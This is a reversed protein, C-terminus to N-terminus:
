GDNRGGRILRLKARFGSGTKAQAEAEGPDPRPAAAPMAASRAVAPNWDAPSESLGLALPRAVSAPATKVSRGAAAPAPAAVPGAAPPPAPLTLGAPAIELEMLRFGEAQAALPWGDLGLAGIVDSPRGHRDALPMLLCAVDPLRTASTDWGSVQGGQPRLIVLVPQAASLAALALEVRRAAVPDPAPGAILEAVTMGALDRGLAAQLRQGAVRLQAPGALQGAIGAAPSALFIRDITGGFGRPDVEARAPCPRGQCLAHWYAALVALARDSLSHRQVSM